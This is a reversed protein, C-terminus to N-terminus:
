ELRGTIPESVGRNGDEDEVEIRVQVSTAGDCTETDDLSGFTGTCNAEALSDAECALNVRLQEVEGMTVVVGDEVVPKLTDAGQPDTAIGDISWVVRTDSSTRVACRADLIVARPSDNDEGDAAGSGGGDNGADGTGTTGTGDDTDTQTITGASNATDTEDVKGGCAVAWLALAGLGTRRLPHM